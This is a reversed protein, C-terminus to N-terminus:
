AMSSNYFGFFLDIIYELHPMCLLAEPPYMTTLVTSQMRWAHRKRSFILQLSKAHKSTKVRKSLLTNHKDDELKESLKANLSNSAIQESLFM